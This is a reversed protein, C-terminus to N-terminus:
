AALVADYTPPKLAIVSQSISYQDFDGDGTVGRNQPGLRVKWVDVFQGPAPAVTQANMGRRVILFVTSGEALAAKAKNADVTSAAQPNFIYQLDPVEYSTLGFEQFTQTTCLRRPAEGKNTTVTPQFDGVLFCSINVTTAAQLESSIDPATEVAVTQAVWISTAGQSKVAEPYLVSM